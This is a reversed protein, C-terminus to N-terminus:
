ADDPEPPESPRGHWLQALLFEDPHMVDGASGAGLHIVGWGPISRVWATAAHGLPSEWPFPGVVLYVYWGLKYKDEEYEYEQHWPGFTAFTLGDPAPPLELPPPKRKTM